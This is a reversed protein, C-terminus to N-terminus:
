GTTWSGGCAKSTARRPAALRHPTPHSHASPHARARAFCAWSPLLISTNCTMCVVSWAALARHGVSIKAADGFCTLDLCTPAHALVATAVELHRELVAITIASAGAAGGGENGELPDAGAVLLLRVVDLHGEQCAVHLPPCSIRTVSPKVGFRLLLRVVHSLGKEAAFYLAKECKPTTADFGSGSGILKHKEFVLLTKAVKRSVQDASATKTVGGSKHIMSLLAEGNKFRSTFLSDKAGHNLLLEVIDPSVGQDCGMAFDIPQFGDKNKAAPNAGCMLLKACVSPQNTVCAIHLPTNELDAGGDHKSNVDAGHDCLWTATERQKAAVAAYLPSFNRECPVNINAGKHLLKELSRVNGSAAADCCESSLETLDRKRDQGKSSAPQQM